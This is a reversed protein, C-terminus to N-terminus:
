RIAEPNIAPAVMAREISELIGDLIEVDSEPRRAGNPHPQDSKVRGRLKLFQACSHKYAPVPNRFAFAGLVQIADNLELFRADGEQWWRDRQAFAEPHFASLGLLYDSGYMVMDVALDNGTYIKFDPRVQDRLALREWELDRRLSSHKMGKLRPIAMLGKVVEISYIQGFPVFMEGLEFALFDVGHKELRAYTDITEADSRAKLDDCQFVIPTGGFEIVEAFAADYRDDVNGPLGQVFAGAVFQKGQMVERGLRLVEQREAPTLLNVYGTDMNLSPTLGANMTHGINEALTDFDIAGSESFPLLVASIGEIRRGPRLRGIVVDLSTTSM